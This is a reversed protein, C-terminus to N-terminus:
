LSEPDIGLERLKAALREKAEAEMKTQTEAHLRAQAEMKAQAKAHQLQTEAHQLQTETHQLQTETHLRASMEERNSLLREGTTANLLEVERQNAGVLGILINTTQSLLRGEHNPRIRQYRRGQLRYGTLEFPKRKNTRRPNIIIYEEVRAREYIGVKKTDDGSYGPSMIEIILCPRTGHKKCDFSGEIAEEDWVNPVVSIDPFPELLGPIRWLMKTDGLVVIDPRDNFHKELKNCLTKALEFHKPGQPMQDGEQPNLFDEPSLPIDHYVVEGNPGIKEVRRWGHPFQEVTPLVEVKRPRLKTLLQSPLAEKLQLSM